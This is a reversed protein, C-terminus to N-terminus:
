VLCNLETETVSNGSETCEKPLPESVDQFDESVSSELTIIRCYRKNNRISNSKVNKGSTGEGCDSVDSVSSSGKRKRRRRRKWKSEAELIAEAVELASAEMEESQPEENVCFSDDLYSTEFDAEVESFVSDLPVAPKHAPMKFRGCRDGPSRIISHLFKAQIDTHTQNGSESVFSSDYDDFGSIDEENFSSSPCSGSEEAEREVFICQPLSHKSKKKVLTKRQNVNKDTECIVKGENRKKLRVLSQSEFDSDDESSIEIVDTTMVPVYSDKLKNGSLNNNNNNNVGATLRPRNSMRSTLWGCHQVPFSKCQKIKEDSANQPPNNTDHPSLIVSENSISSINIKRNRVLPKMVPSDDDSTPARCTVREKESIGKNHLVTRESGFSVLWDAQGEFNKSRSTEKKTDCFVANSAANSVEAYQIEDRIIRSPSERDINRRKSEASSKDLSSGVIKVSLNEMCTFKASEKLKYKSSMRSLLPKRVATTPLSNGVVSESIKPVLTKVSAVGFDLVPDVVQKEAIGDESEVVEHNVSRDSHTEPVIDVACEGQVIASTVPSSQKCATLTCCDVALDAFIDDDSDRLYDHELYEEESKRDGNLSVDQVAPCTMKNTPSHSYKRIQSCVIPCGPSTADSPKDKLAYNISDSSVHAITHSKSFKSPVDCSLVNESCEQVHKSREETAMAGEVSECPLVLEEVDTVTNQQSTVQFEKRNEMSITKSVMGLLQTVTYMTSNLTTSTCVEQNRLHEVRKADSELNFLEQTVGFLDFNPRPPSPVNSVLSNLLLLDECDGAMVTDVSTEGKVELRQTRSSTLNGGEEQVTRLCRPFLNKKHTKPTSCVPVTRTPKLIVNKPASCFIPSVPSFLLNCPKNPTEKPSHNTSDLCSEMQGGRLPLHEINRPKNAIGAAISSPCMGPSEQVDEMERKPTIMSDRRSEIEVLDSNRYRNHPCVNVDSHSTKQDVEPVAVEDKLNGIPNGPLLEDEFLCKEFLDFDLHFNIKMNGGNKQSQVQSASEPNCDITLKQKIVSIDINHDFGENVSGNELDLFQRLDFANVNAETFNDLACPDLPKYCGSDETKNRIASSCAMIHHCYFLSNKCFYCLDHSTLDNKEPFAKHGSIKEALFNHAIECSHDNCMEKLEMYSKANTEGDANEKM